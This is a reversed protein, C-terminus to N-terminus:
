ASAGRDLNSSVCILCFLRRFGVSPLQICSGQAPSVCTRRIIYPYYTHPTVSSRRITSIPRYIVRQSADVQHVLTAPSPSPICIVHHPSFTVQRGGSFTSRFRLVLAQLTRPVRPRRSRIRKHNILRHTFFVFAWTSGTGRGSLSTTLSLLILGVVQCVM